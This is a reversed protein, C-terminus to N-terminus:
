LSYLLEKRIVGERLVKIGTDTVETITSPLGGPSPGADIILDIRDGFYGLVASADSAPSSGSPNASTATIAFGAAKALRLAFSEGPMRVAIKGTGATLLQSLTKRAPLLFTLPGPWLRQMLLHAKQNASAVITDLLAMDGIILPIAKDKPRQKIDHLKKLAEENDFKVGLGYFTETPFAVIGGKELLNVAHLLVERINQRTVKIVM